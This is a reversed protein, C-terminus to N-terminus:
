AFSVETLKIQGNEVEIKYHKNSMKDNYLLYEGNSGSTLDNYIRIKATNGISTPNVKPMDRVTSMVEDEVFSVGVITVDTVINPDYMNGDTTDYCYKIAGKTGDLRYYNINRLSCYDALEIKYPNTSSDTNGSKRYILFKSTSRENDRIEIDKAVINPLKLKDRPINAGAIYNVKVLSVDFDAKIVHINEFNITGSFLHGYTNNLNLLTRGGLDPRAYNIFVSNKVTVLGVGYGLNVGWDYLKCNDITIDRFYNHVDIRNLACDRITWDKVCTSATAGWFGQINCDRTIIKMSEMIRLVYGSSFSNNVNKYGAINNGNIESIEVNYSDRITIMSGKYSVNKMSNPVPDITFGTIHTNHRFSQLFGNTVNPTTQVSLLCGKFTLRRNNYFSYKFTSLNTDDGDYGHILAGFCMGLFNHFMIEGRFEDYTLSADYRTAWKKGDRIHLVANKPLSNDEMTFHSTNKKLEAKNISNEYSYYTENDNLIVYWAYCNDNTILVTSGSLDVDYKVTLEENNNKYITGFSNKLLVKNANCYKHAKLMAPYDNDVGDLKAGLMRYNIFDKDVISAFLGDKVSISWESPTKTILYRAAGGDNIHYYGLTRVFRGEKVEKDNALGIFTDVVYDIGQSLGDVLESRIRKQISYFL